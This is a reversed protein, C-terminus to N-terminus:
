VPPSVCITVACNGEAQMAGSQMGVGGGRVADFEVRLGLVTSADRAAAACGGAWTGTADVKAFAIGSHGRVETCIDAEIM